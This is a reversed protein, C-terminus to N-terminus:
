LLPIHTPQTCKTNNQYWSMGCWDQQGRCQFPYFTRSIYELFHNFTELPANWILFVDHLYCCWLIILTIIGYTKEALFAMFLNAYDPSLILDMAAGHKQLYFNFLFYNKLLMFVLDLLFSTCPIDEARKDLFHRLEELDGEYPVTCKSLIWVRESEGCKSINCGKGM